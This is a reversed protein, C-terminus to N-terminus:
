MPYHKAEYIVIADVLEDLEASEEDTITKNISKDLLEDTRTFATVYEDHTYIEM